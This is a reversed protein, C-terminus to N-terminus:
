LEELRYVNGHEDQVLIHGQKTTALEEFLRGGGKAGNPDYRWAQGAHVVAIPLSDSKILAYIGRQVTRSDAGLDKAIDQLYVTQGPKAELYRAIVARRVTGEREKM